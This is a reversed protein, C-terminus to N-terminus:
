LEFVNRDSNLDREFEMYEVSIRKLIMALAADRLTSFYINSNQLYYLFETFLILKNTKFEYYAHLAKHCSM